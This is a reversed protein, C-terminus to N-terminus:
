EPVADAMASWPEILRLRKTELARYCDPLDFHELVHPILAALPWHYQQSEAVSTYSELPNKLTVQQVHDSFLAAFTAALAGWGRGVLHIDEYGHGALFQLVQLVDRAKQGLYPDDLMISHIAYFYDCGYPDDFSSNGCTNPMSEGIGRVDCTFFMAEPEAEILERILPEQQLEMDSSRHAVYLVARKGARPPRSYWAERSLMYVIALM